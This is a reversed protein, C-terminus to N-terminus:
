QVSDDLTANAEARKKEHIKQREYWGTLETKAVALQMNTRYKEIKEETVPNGNGDGLINWVYRNVNVERIPWGHADILTYLRKKMDERLESVTLTEMDPTEVSAAAYDLAQSAAGELVERVQNIDIEQKDEGM